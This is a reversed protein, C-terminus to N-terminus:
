WLIGKMGSASKLGGSMQFVDIRHIDGSRDKFAPFLFGCEPRGPEYDGSVPSITCIIFSYVEESERLSEKDKAKLPM